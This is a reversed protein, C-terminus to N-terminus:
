QVFVYAIWEIFLFFPRGLLSTFVLLTGLLMIVFHKQALQEFRDVITRLFRPLFPRIVKLGDFSPLPLLNFLALLLNIFVVLYGLSFMVPTMLDFLALGRMLIATVLALLINSAPGAFAVFAEGYTRWRLYQPTYPVPRAFAFLFPSSTVVLILPLLFSGVPDLHSLPNFTLRGANRPTPDDLYDAAYGHAVEHIVASIILVIIPFIIDTLSVDMYTRSYWLTAVLVSTHYPKGWIARVQGTVFRPGKTPPRYEFRVRAVFNLGTPFM